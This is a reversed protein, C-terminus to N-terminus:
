RDPSGVPIGVGMEMINNMTAVLDIWPGTWITKNKKTDHKEKLFTNNWIIEIIKM